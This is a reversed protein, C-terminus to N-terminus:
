RRGSTSRRSDVLPVLRGAAGGIVVLAVSATALDVGLLLMALLVVAVVAFAGIRVVAHEDPRRRAAGPGRRPILTKRM